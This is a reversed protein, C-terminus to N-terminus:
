IAEPICEIFRQKNVVAQPVVGFKNLYSEILYLDNQWDPPPYSSKIVQAIKKVEEQWNIKQKLIAKVILDGCLKDEAVKQGRNGAYIVVVTGKKLSFYRALTNVNGTSGIVVKGKTMQVAKEIVKSGNVSMWLINKGTAPVKDIEGPQNSAFFHKPSLQDSEGVLLAKPYTKIAKKLNNENVVILHRPKKFLLIDINLSAAWADVSVIYDAVISKLQHFWFTRIEVMM